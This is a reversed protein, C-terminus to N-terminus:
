RTTASQRERRLTNKHQGKEGVCRGEALTLLEQTTIAAAVVVRLIMLLIDTIASTGLGMAVEVGGDEVDGRRSWYEM